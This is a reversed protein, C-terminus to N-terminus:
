SSPGSRRGRRPVRRRGRCAAHRRRPARCPRRRRSAAGIGDDADARAGHGVDALHRALAIAADRLDHHLRRRGDVAEGVIDRDDQPVADLAGHRRAPRGDHQGVHHRDAARRALHIGGAEALRDREEGRRGVPIQRREGAEVVGEMGGRHRHQLAAAATGGSQDAPMALPSAAAMRSSVRSSASRPMTEPTELVVAQREPTSCTMLWM